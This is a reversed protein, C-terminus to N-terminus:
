MDIGHHCTGHWICCKRRTKTYIVNVHSAMDFQHWRACVIKDHFEIDFKAHTGHWVAQCSIGHWLTSESRVPVIKCRNWVPDGNLPHKWLNPIPSCANVNRHTESIKACFSRLFSFSFRVWLLSLSFRFCCMSVSFTVILVLLCVPCLLAVCQHIHLVSFWLYFYLSTFCLRFPLVIVAGGSWWSKVCFPLAGFCGM